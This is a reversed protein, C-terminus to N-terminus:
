FLDFLKRYTSNPDIKTQRCDTFRFVIQEDCLFLTMIPHDGGSPRSISGGTADGAENLKIVIGFIDNDFLRKASEGHMKIYHFYALSGELEIYENFLEKLKPTFTFIEQLNLYGRIKKFLSDVAPPVESVNTIGTTIYSMSTDTLFQPFRKINAECDCHDDGCYIFCHKDTPETPISPMIM